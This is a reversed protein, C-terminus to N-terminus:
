FENASSTEVIMHVFDIRAAFARSFDPDNTEVENERRLSRKFVHLDLIQADDHWVVKNGADLMPKVFNDVDLDTRWGAYYYRLTVKLGVGRALHTRGRVNPHLRFETSM